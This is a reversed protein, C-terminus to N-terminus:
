RPLPFPPIRIRAERHACAARREVCRRSLSLLTMTDREPAREWADATTPKIKVRRREERDNSSYKEDAVVACGERAVSSFPVWGLVQRDEM